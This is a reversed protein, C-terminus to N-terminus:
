ACMESIPPRGAQHRQGPPAFTDCGAPVMAELAAVTAEIDEHREIMVHLIHLVLILRVSKTFQFSNVMYIAREYKYRFRLPISCDMQHFGPICVQSGYRLRVRNPGRSVLSPPWDAV